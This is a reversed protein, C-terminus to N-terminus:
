RCVHRYPRGPLLDNWEDHTLERGAVRCAFRVWARVDTPWRTTDTLNDIVLDGGPAFRAVPISGQEVPFAEALRKRARLDWLTATLDNSSVAFLRGDPSFSIPDVAGTAVEIPAGVRSGKDADWLVVKGDETGAALLRGDPTFAISTAHGEVRPSFLLAGSRAAWVKITSGPDCCGLAVLKRGDPSFDLGGKGNPIARHFLVAGSTLNRVEVRSSSSGKAQAQTALLKGDPSVAVRWVHDRLRLTRVVARKRVDWVTVKGNTGGTALSRGDPFFALADVSPGNRAPLTDILRQARLDVLGIRGDALSEAMVSGRGDIVFCPTEPCGAFPARWRFARGLRRAGSLDWEALTGDQAGSVATRGDALAVNLGSSQGSFTQTISGSAVNWVRVAGDFSRGVVRGGDPTFRVAVVWGPVPLEQLSRHRGTRLDLVALSGEPESPNPNNKALVLRRGDPSIAFPGGLEFHREITGTKVDWLLTEGQQASTLLAGHPTFGVSAENQGRQLPYKREWVVRGSPAALLLIRQGLPVLSPTPATAVAVALRSGDPSFAMRTFRRPGAIAPVSDWSGVLRPRRTATDILFLNARDQGTTTAVALTDGDPSFEIADQSVAGEVRVSVGRAQLTRLDNFRVVGASDGSALLRRARSVALAPVDAQSVRMVRILGPRKQLVSLLDGRTEPLNRLKVGAVALLLSRDLNPEALALTGLREADSRLAQAEATAQAERAHSRQVLALAAAALAVVLFAAIGIVLARLRRNTRRQREAERESAQRSATLFDRELQNLEPDHATAWDGTTALRTGRFLAGPDRGLTEWEQAAETLRRHLLTGERDEDLWERLTPWHRILAEHAVEATGEGLTILRADALIQLVERVDAEREARPVLEVVSVRRRTDETGEGLETLRLFVNRALTQQEVSLADRYVSEATQAVAGQVGGSQLYGILTLMRGSRRRWTELLSHSLLPLAGPQGLVDRLVGEVMGPELLLGAQEAPREIARRLEEESMPGVLAQDHELASALRPYVACHGYFDARLAFVVRIGRGAADLLADVFERREEEDRCLTFVEEFQDVVLLSAAGTGALQALPHAGPSFIAVRLEDGSVRRLAPVVGARVLSSKGSGSPGVVALLNSEMLRAVLDEVLQERGFYLESDEPEFPLLGKYPCPVDAPPLSYDPLGAAEITEEHVRLPPFSSPLGDVVLQFLREPEPLDKLRHGGLERLTGAGADDRLILRTTRESVIVQGGHAAAAIRAARHVDIGVYHGDVVIPEGTHLGMRVRLVEGEPWAHGSLARQAEEAAALAGKPDPFGVFFSDGQTDVEVGGHRAFAARLLRRHDTLVQAYREGLAHLLRTSGEIDTFLFTVSGTPLQRM